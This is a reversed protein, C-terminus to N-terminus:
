QEVRGRGCVSAIEQITEQVADVITPAIYFSGDYVEHATRKIHAVGTISFFMRTENLFDAAVFYLAEELQYGKEKARMEGSRLHRITLSLDMLNSLSQVLFGTM